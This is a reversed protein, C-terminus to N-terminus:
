LDYAPLRLWFTWTPVFNNHYYSPDDPAELLRLEVRLVESDARSAVPAADPESTPARPACESRLLAVTEAHTLGLLAHGNIFLLM